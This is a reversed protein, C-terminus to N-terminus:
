TREHESYPAQGNPEINADPILGPYVDRYGLLHNWIARRIHGQIPTGDLESLQHLIDNHYKSLRLTLM